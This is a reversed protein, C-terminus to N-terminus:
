DSKYSKRTPPKSKIPMPKFTKTKVEAAIPQEITSKTSKVVEGPIVGVDATAPPIETQQSVYDIFYLEKDLWPMVIEEQKLFGNANISNVISPHLLNKDILDFWTTTKPNMPEIDTKYVAMNIWPDQFQKLLYADRCDFGNVALMYILMIPNYHFICGNYGRSYQRGYEIGTHQPVSLALMGNVNLYGNWKRLTHLPDTSYQLSDHAWIFDIPVPFLYDADFSNNNKHINKLNPLQALKSADTDVAHCAFNYPQPPDENNMLTAWWTTDEGTGCGMDAIHHISELFIDYQQILDLIRLSHRALQLM